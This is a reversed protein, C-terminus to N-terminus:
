IPVLNITLSSIRKATTLHTYSVPIPETAQLTIQFYGIGDLHVREGERLHNSMCRSLEQRKYVDQYRCFLPLHADKQFM